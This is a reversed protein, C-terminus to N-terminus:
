INSLTEILPCTTSLGKECKVVLIELTAEMAQLDAVKSRVDALHSRAVGMVEACPQSQEDSLRLMARVEEPQFGLERARRIFSLRRVDDAGYLRYGAETRMPRALMGVKEYYRITDINCGTRRALEGIQLRVDTGRSGSLHRDM